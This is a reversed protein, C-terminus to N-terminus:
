VSQGFGSGRLSVSEKKIKLLHESCNEENRPRHLVSLTQFPKPPLHTFDTASSPVKALSQATPSPCATKQVLDDGAPDQPSHVTGGVAALVMRESKPTPRSPPLNYLVFEAFGM